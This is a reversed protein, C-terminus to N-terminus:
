VKFSSGIYLLKVPHKIVYFRLSFKFIPVNYLVHFILCILFLDFITFFNENFYKFKLEYVKM